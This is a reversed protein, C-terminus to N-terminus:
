KKFHNKIQFHMLIINKIKFFIISSMPVNLHNSFIFFNVQLL